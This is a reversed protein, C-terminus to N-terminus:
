IEGSEEPSYCKQLSILEYRVPTGKYNVRQKERVANLIREKGKVKAM